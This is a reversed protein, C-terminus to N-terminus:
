RRSRRTTETGGDPQRQAEQVETTEADRVPANM